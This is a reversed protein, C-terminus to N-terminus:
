PKRLKARLNSFASFNTPPVPVSKFRRMSLDVPMFRCSESRQFVEGCSYCVWASESCSFYTDKSGCAVCQISSGISHHGKGVIGLATKAM